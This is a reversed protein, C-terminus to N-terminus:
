NLCVTGSAGVDKTDMHDKSCHILDNKICGTSHVLSVCYECSCYTFLWIAVHAYHLLMKIISGVTVLSTVLFSLYLSINYDIQLLNYYAQGGYSGFFAILFLQPSIM